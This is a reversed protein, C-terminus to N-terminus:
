IFRMLIVAILLIGAMLVTMLQIRKASQKQNDDVQQIKGKLEINRKELENTQRELEVLSNNVSSVTTSMSVVQQELLSTKSQLERVNQSVTLTEQKMLEIQEKLYHETETFSNAVTSNLEKFREENKKLQLEYENTKETFHLQVAELMDTTKKVQDLQEGVLLQQAEIEQLYTSAKKVNKIENGLEDIFTELTEINKLQGM